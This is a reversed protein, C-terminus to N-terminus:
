QAKALLDNLARTDANEWSRARCEGALGAAAARFSALSQERDIQIVPPREHDLKCFAASWATDKSGELWIYFPGDLFWATEESTSSSNQLRVAAELLASTFAVPLDSWHEEPFYTDDACLWVQGSITGMVSISLSELNLILQLTQMLQSM